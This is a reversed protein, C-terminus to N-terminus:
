CVEPRLKVVYYTANASTCSTIATIATFNGSCNADPYFCIRLNDPLVPVSVTSFPQSNNVQQCVAFGTGSKPVAQGVCNKEKFANFTWHEDAAVPSITDGFYLKVDGYLKTWKPSHDKIGPTSAGRITQFTTLALLGLCLIALTAKLIHKKNQRSSQSGHFPAWKPLVPFSNDEQSAKEFDM